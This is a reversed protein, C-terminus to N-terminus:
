QKNFSTNNCSPCPPMTDGSGLTVETGCNDCKYSGAGPTEGTKAKM